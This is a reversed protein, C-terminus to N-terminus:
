SYLKNLQQRFRTYALCAIFLLLSFLLQLSGAEIQEADTLKVIAHAFYFLVMFSTYIHTKTIGALLGNLPLLFPGVYLILLLAIPFSQPPTLWAVNLILTILLSFYGILVAYRSINLKQELKEKSLNM